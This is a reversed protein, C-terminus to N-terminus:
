LCYDVGLRRVSGAAAATPLVVKAAINALHHTSAIVFTKDDAFPLEKATFETIARDVIGKAENLAEEATDEVVTLCLDDVHICITSRPFEIQLSSVANRLLCWLEFTAFASGATIGRTAVVPAALVCDLGVYRLWAYSLLSGLLPLM